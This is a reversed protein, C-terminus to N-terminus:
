EEDDDFGGGLLNPDIGSLADGMGLLGGPSAPPTEQRVRPEPTGLTRLLDEMASPRPPESMAQTIPPEEWAFEEEEGGGSFDIVEFEEEAPPADQVVPAPEAKPVPAPEPPPVEQEEEEPEPEPKPKAKGKGKKGKTEEEEPEEAEGEGTLGGLIQNVTKTVRDQEDPEEDCHAAFCTMFMMMTMPKFFANDLIYFVPILLVTILIGACVGNTIFVYLILLTKLIAPVVEFIGYTSVATILISPLCCLYRKLGEFVVNPVESLDKPKNKILYFITADFGYDLVSKAMHEIIPNEALSQLNNLIPVDELLDWLSDKFNSAVSRVIARVGYVAGFGVLNVSFVKMGVTIAPAGSAEIKKAYALASVHWGRIFMFILSGVFNCFIVGLLLSLLGGAIYNFTSEGMLEVFAYQIAAAVFIYALAVGIAVVLRLLFFGSTVRLNRRFADRM